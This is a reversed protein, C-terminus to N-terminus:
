NSDNLIRKFIKNNEKLPERYDKLFLNLDNKLRYQLIFYSPSFM